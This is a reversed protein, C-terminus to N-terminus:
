GGSVATFVALKDGDKLRTDPAAYEENIALLLKHNKIEPHESAFKEVVDSASERDSIPLEIERMGVLDATAGFFLVRVRM